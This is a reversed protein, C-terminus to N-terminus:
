EENKGGIYYKRRLEDFDSYSLQLTKMGHKSKEYFEELLNFCREQVLKEVEKEPILNEYVPQNEIAQKVCVPFIHKNEILDQILAHKEIYQKIM